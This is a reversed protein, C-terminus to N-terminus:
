LQKSIEATWNKALEKEKLYEDDKCHNLFNEFDKVARYRDGKIKWNFFGLCYHYQYKDPEQELIWVMFEEVQTLTVPAIEYNSCIRYQRICKQLNGEYAWLFALNFHWIPDDYKKCKKIYGIAEKIRRGNLFEIISRLILVDYYEDLPPTIKALNLSVQELANEDKTKRWTNMFIQAKVLYIESSRTPLREKYNQSFLSIQRSVKSSAELMM